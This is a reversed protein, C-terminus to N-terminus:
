LMNLRARSLEWGRGDRNTCRVGNQASSCSFGGRSWSSGYALVPHEPNVATDTVCLVEPLGRAQMAVASGYSCDRARRPQPPPTYSRQVIDCRLEGGLLACHINGTPTRFGAEEALAPLAALALLAAALHALRM